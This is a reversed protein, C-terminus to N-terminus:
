RSEKKNAKQFANLVERIELWHERCAVIEVNATGWRYFAGALPNQECNKCSM